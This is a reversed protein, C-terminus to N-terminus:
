ELRVIETGAATKGLTIHLEDAANKEIAMEQAVHISESGLGTYYSGGGKCTIVIDESAVQKGGKYPSLVLRYGMGKPCADPWHDPHLSVPAWDVTPSIAHLEPEPFRPEFGAVCLAENRGRRPVALASMLRLVMNESPKARGSELFSVHRASVDAAMALDLQLYGHRSRWYKLIASFLRTSM